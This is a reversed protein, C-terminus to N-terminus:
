NNDKEEYKEGAILAPKNFNFAGQAKEWEKRLEESSLHLYMDMTTQLQVHRAREQTAKMDKTQLYYLTLHTHRLLHSHIDIGTKKKLRKMLSSVDQYEMPKGKNDGTLKVFLFNTDIELEDIIEYM